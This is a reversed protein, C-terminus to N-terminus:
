NKKKRQFQDLKDGSWKFVGHKIEVGQAQVTFVIVATIIATGYYALTNTVEM